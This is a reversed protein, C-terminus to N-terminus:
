FGSNLHPRFLTWREEGDTAKEAKRLICQWVLCSLPLLCSFDGEVSSDQVLFRPPFQVSHGPGDWDSGSLVLAKNSFSERQSLKNLHLHIHTRYLSSGHAIHTSIGKRLGRKRKPFHSFTPTHPETCAHYLSEGCCFFWTRRYSRM